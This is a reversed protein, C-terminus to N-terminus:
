LRFAEMSGLSFLFSSRSTGAFINQNTTDPTFEIKYEQVGLTRLRARIVDDDSPEYNRTAIRELDNLFSSLLIFNIHPVGNGRGWLTNNCFFFFFECGLQIKWVFM